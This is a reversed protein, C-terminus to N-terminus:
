DIIDEKILENKNKKIIPENKTKRHIRHMEYIAEAAIDPFIMLKHIQKKYIIQMRAFVQAIKLDKNYEKKKLEEFENVLNDMENTNDYRIDEIIKEVNELFEVIPQNIPNIRLEEFDKKLNLKKLKTIPSEYWEGSDKQTINEETKGFQSREKVM